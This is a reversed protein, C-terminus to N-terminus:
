IISFTYDSHIRLINIGQFILSSDSALLRNAIRCIYGTVLDFPVTFAFSTKSEGITLITNWNIGEFGKLVLSFGVTSGVVSHTGSVPMKFFTAGVLLVASGFLSSLFGLMLERESGKYMSLDFIGKRVTDSM